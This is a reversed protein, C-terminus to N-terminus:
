PMPGDSPLAPRRSFKLTDDPQLYGDIVFAGAPTRYPVIFHSPDGSDSQGAYFRAPWPMNIQFEHDSYSGQRLLASQTFLSEPRVVYWYLVDDHGRYPTIQIAKGQRLKFLNGPGVFVLRPAGGTVSREHLYACAQPDAPFNAFALDHMFQIQNVAFQPWINFYGLVRGHPVDALTMWDQGLYKGGALKTAADPDEEYVVSGAALSYTACRQQAAHLPVYRTRFKDVEPGAIIFLLFLVFGSVLIFVWVRSNSGKPRAAYDLVTEAM